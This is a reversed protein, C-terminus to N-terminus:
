TAILNLFKFQDEFHKTVSLIEIKIEVYSEFM